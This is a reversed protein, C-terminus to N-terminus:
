KVIIPAIVRNGERLHRLGSCYPYIRRMTGIPNIMILCMLVFRLLRKEMIEHPISQLIPDLAM